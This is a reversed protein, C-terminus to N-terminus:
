AYCALFPPLRLVALPVPCPAHEPSGEELCRQLPSPAKPGLSEEPGRVVPRQEPWPEFPRLQVTGVGLRAQPAAVALM